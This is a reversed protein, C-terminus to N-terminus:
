VSFYERTTKEILTLMEKKAEENVGLIGNSQIFFSVAVKNSIRGGLGLYEIDISSCEALVSLYKILLNASNANNSDILHKIENELEADAEMMKLNVIKLRYSNVFIDILRIMLETNIIIQRHGKEHQKKQFARYGYNEDYPVAIVKFVKEPVNFLKFKIIKM